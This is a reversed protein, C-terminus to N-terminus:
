EPFRVTLNSLVPLLMFITVAPVPSSVTVISPIDTNLRLEPSPLSWNKRVEFESPYLVLTVIFPPLPTSVNVKALPKSKLTPLM